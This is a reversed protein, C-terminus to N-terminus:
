KGISVELKVIRESLNLELRSIRNLIYVTSVVITTVFSFILSIISVIEM